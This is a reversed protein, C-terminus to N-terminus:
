PRRASACSGRRHAAHRSPRALSSAPPRTGLPTARPFLRRRTTVLFAAARQLQDRAFSTPYMEPNTVPPLPDTDRNAGELVPFRFPHRLAALQPPVELPVAPPRLM